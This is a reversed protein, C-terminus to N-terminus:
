PFTTKAQAPCGNPATHVAGALTVTESPATVGKVIETLVSAEPAAVGGRAGVMLAVAVAAAAALLSAWRAEPLRFM